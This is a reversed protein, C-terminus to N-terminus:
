RDRDAGALVAMLAIVVVRVSAAAPGRDEPIRACDVGHAPFAIM